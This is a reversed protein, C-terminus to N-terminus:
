GSFRCLSKMITESRVFRCACPSFPICVHPNLTRPISATPLRARVLVFAVAIVPLLLTFVAGKKDRSAILARKRFMERFAVLARSGPRRQETLRAAAARSARAWSPAEPLKPSPKQRQSHLGNAAPMVKSHSHKDTYGNGAPESSSEIAHGNAHGSAHGNTTAPLNQLTASVDRIDLTNSNANAGSSQQEAPGNTQKGGGSSDMGAVSETGSTAPSTHGNAQSVGNAAAPDADPTAGGATTVRLFIEELTPMALGFHQLGLVDAALCM